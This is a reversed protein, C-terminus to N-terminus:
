QEYKRWSHHDFVFYNLITKKKKKQLVLESVVITFLMNSFYPYHLLQYDPMRYYRSVHQGAM